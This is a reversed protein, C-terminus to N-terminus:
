SNLPKKAFKLFMPMLNLCITLLNIGLLTVSDDCKINTQGIQFSEINEHTKKGICIAQFKDPNTNMLNQDFWSILIQSEQELVSKLHLLDKHIFSLTNDDAYNYLISQVIFYFIDNIFVNFLLPGLSSGQPPGKLFSKGHAPMHDWNLRSLGTM